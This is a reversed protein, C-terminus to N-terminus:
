PCDRSVGAVANSRTLAVKRPTLVGAERRKAIIEEPRCRKRSM